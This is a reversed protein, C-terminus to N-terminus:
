GGAGLGRQCLRRLLGPELKACLSHAIGPKTVYATTLDCLSAATVVVTVTATYVTADGDKDTIRGRVARAGTDSTSCTTSPGAAAVFTGNGCDFAYTFGAAPRCGVPREPEHARARVALRRVRVADGHLDGDPRREDVQVTASSVASLEGDSVRFRGARRRGTSRAASFTATQGATEFTGDNDLDWAYTLDGDPHRQGCADDFRGRSRHVARRCERDAARALGVGILVPDHDSIRFHDPAYISGGAGADQVRHQLRPDVARRRQHALRRRGDGPTSRRRASRTTSTAGSRRRLRLLLGRPRRAACSTTSAPRRSPGHDPGGQRLLEHRRPDPLRSRRHGDPRDRALRRASRGGADESRTATARGDGPTPTATM